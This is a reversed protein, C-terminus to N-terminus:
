SITGAGALVLVIMGLAIRYVVFIYLSHRALWRLLFAISAYGVIFAAITSIVLPGIGVGDGTAGLMDTLGYLGSLVIAPISLLFSFRAAAMTPIALFFSFEAATKRDLGMLLSGMITAGSRSVGPVLALAQALGMVIADRRTVSEVPRIKRSFRDAVGLIIGFVILTIGVLYLNRAAGEIQDKFILGFVVIPVTGIVLYWGLRANLDRRLEPHTWSRTWTIAVNVLDRWFYLVVAVMTGLQVVATFM